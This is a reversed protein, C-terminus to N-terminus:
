PTSGQGVFEASTAHQSLRARNGEDNEQEPQRSDAGPGLGELHLAGGAGDGVRGGVVVTLGRVEPGCGKRGVRCTLKQLRRAVHVPGDLALLDRAPVTIGGHAVPRLGVQKREARKRPNGVDCGALRSRLKGVGKVGHVRARHQLRPIGGGIVVRVGAQSREGVVAGNAQHRVAVGAARDVAVHIGALDHVDAHHVPVNRRRQHGNILVVFEKEGQGVNALDHPRIQELLM